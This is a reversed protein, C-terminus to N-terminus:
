ICIYQIGTVCTHTTTQDTPLILFILIVPLDYVPRMVQMHSTSTSSTVKMALSSSSVASSRLSNCFIFFSLASSCALFTQVRGERTHAHVADERKCSLSLFSSSSLIRDSFRRRPFGRRLWFCRPSKLIPLLDSKHTSYM